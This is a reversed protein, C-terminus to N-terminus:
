APTAVKERKKRDDEALQRRLTKGILTKPLSDRFEIEHPVKFPALQTRTHAILEEPTATQGPKLVIFAKVEEGKIPHPKGIAASDMVAPHSALAEEVERPYVNFGSVIIMEKKRDVISYYGDADVTAIDGTHLWGNRITQATEDAKNYYGDMLQPGRLVLEGPEGIPMERDGTESDVIKCEVDPYPVGITGTKQKGKGYLPNCHTVPAAETLGYGEVLNAGTLAVFKKHTEIMLPASGSICAEISRLDYKTALPSNIIANYIRPAGSFTQPKHKAIDKLVRELEFQPELLMASAAQVAQGMVVTLGYVHFFPMVAMSIGEGDTTHVHWARCQLTNAVLARHSLMAGKSVGTTGGTYQLLAIDDKTVGADFHDAPAALVERYAIAGPDGAFPQRHGDKKEKALTFLTRIVLPMEEKINTVIVTKIKTGQRAAKVVPYLRSLVVITEAGSDALQHRLEPVTYLPNCPAVTAGARLAGYFSVIFQPTNPLMIAVRDGKKVGLRRLGNAFRWADDSISQYTRKKNFFITCTSGPYSEAADDLFAHMTTDPYSLTAPVGEDYHRTWPRGALPAPDKAVVGIRKAM